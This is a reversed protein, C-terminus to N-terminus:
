KVYLEFFRMLITAVEARTGFDAPNLTSQTKGKLLGSAVAYEFADAAYDAISEYDEYGKIDAEAKVDYGCYDAYRYIIVAMQERSVKEDPAFHTDSVGSVIGEQKAWMVADAYWAGEKVDEFASGAIKPQGAARYLVTVLMARTMTSQPEFGNDTGQMLNNEYVYEVSEYFWDSKKVDKFTGATFVPKSEEPKQAEAPKSTGTSGYSGGTGTKEKEDEELTYDDTYHLVIKDGKKVTQEAIGRDPYKGNLTYMWGSRDGNDMEGLGRISEIYEGTPNEYPIGETSLVKKAVDLV